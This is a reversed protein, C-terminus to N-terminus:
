YVHKTNDRCTILTSGCMIRRRDLSCMGECLGPISGLPTCGPSPGLARACDRGRATGSLDVSAVLLPATTPFSAAASHGRANRLAICRVAPMTALWACAAGAAAFRSHLLPLCRLCRTSRRASSQALTVDARENCFTRKYNCTNTAILHTGSCSRKGQRLSSKQSPVFVWAHSIEFLHFIVLPQVRAGFTRRM